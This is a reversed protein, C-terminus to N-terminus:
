SLRSSRQRRGFRGALATAAMLLALMGPEPISITQFVRGDVDVGQFFVSNESVDLFCAHHGVTFDTTIQDPMGPHAPTPPVADADLVGGGGGTVIYYVGNKQYADYIHDHGSLVMTVGYQEFLPVWDARVEPSPDVGSSFPPNHTMVFTWKQTNAALDAELWESQATVMAPDLYQGFVELSSTLSVFHAPGYDFSYYLDSGQPNNAPTSILDQYLQFTYMAEHNGCATYIPTNRLMPAAPTFFEQNLASVGDFLGFEAYDGHHLVIDPNYSQILNVVRAHQDPQKQSDGYIAFRFSSDSSPATTFHYNADNLGLTQGAAEVYYYLTQGSSLGSVAASHIGNSNTSSVTHDYVGPQFGYHLTGGTGGAQTGWMIETSNQTLNQIYPSRTIQAVASGAMAAVIWLIRAYYEM